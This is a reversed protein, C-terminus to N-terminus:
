SHPAADRQDASHLDDGSRADLENSDCSGTCASYHLQNKLMEVHKRRVAIANDGNPERVLLIRKSILEPSETAVLEVLAEGAHRTQIRSYSDFHIWIFGFSYLWIFAVLHICGDSHLRICSFM